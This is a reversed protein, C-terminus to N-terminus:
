HLVHAKAKVTIDNEEKRVNFITTQRSCSYALESFPPNLKRGATNDIQGFFFFYKKLTIITYNFSYIFLVHISVKIFTYNKIILHALHPVSLFCQKQPITAEELFLMSKQKSCARGMFHLSVISTLSQLM